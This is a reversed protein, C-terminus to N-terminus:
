APRDNRRSEEILDLAANILDLEFMDVDRM